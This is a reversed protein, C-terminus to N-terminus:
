LGGSSENLINTIEAKEIIRGVGEFHLLQNNDDYIARNIWGIRITGINHMLSRTLIDPTFSELHRMMINRRNETLKNLFNKGVVAPFLNMCVENAFLLTGDKLFRVMFSKEDERFMIRDFFDDLSIVKATSDSM